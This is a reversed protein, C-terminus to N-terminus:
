LGNIVSRIEAFLLGFSPPNSLLPNTVPNGSNACLVVGSGLGGLSNTHVYIQEPDQWYRSPATGAPTDKGYAASIACVLGDSFQNRDPCGTTPDTTRVANSCSRGAAAMWVGGSGPYAATAWQGTLAALYSSLEVNNSAQEARWNGDMERAISPCFGLIDVGSYPYGLNPTGLTILAAVKRGNLNLRNNALMDRALLGGMSFGLLVIDGPPNLDAIYQALKQAGGANSCSSSCFFGGDACESFDFGADVTFRTLDIGSSGTLSGYLGQMDGKGQGLGHILFVTMVPAPAVPEAVAVTIEAQSTVDGVQITLPLSGGSPLDAPVVVNVQAFGSVYPPAAGAYLVRADRGAIKVAVPAKVNATTKSLEGDSGAPDTQGFGTMYFTFYSGPTAPNAASNLSWDPNNIAGQGKGSQDASFIGPATAAVPKSYAESAAGLYVAQVLVSAKGEASYPVMAAVQGASVYILPVPTGDILVQVGSLTNAVKGDADLQLTVLSAPGLGSGFLIVMEGPAVPGTAYSAVNTIAAIVPKPSQAPSAIPAALAVLLAALCRLCFRTKTESM